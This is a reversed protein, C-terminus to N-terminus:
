DTATGVQSASQSLYQSQGISQSQDVTSDDSDNAEQNQNATNSQTADQDISQDVTADGFAQQSQPISGRRSWYLINGVTASQQQQQQWYIALRPWKRNRNASNGSLPINMTASGVSMTLIFHPATNLPRINSNSIQNKSASNYPWSFISNFSGFLVPHNNQPLSV